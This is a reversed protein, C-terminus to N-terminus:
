HMAQEREEHLWDNELIVERYPGDYCLKNDNKDQESYQGRQCHDQKVDRLQVSSHFQCYVFILFQEIAHM